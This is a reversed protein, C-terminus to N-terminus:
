FSALPVKQSSLYSIAEKKAGARLINYFELIILLYYIDCFLVLLAIYSVLKKVVKVGLFRSISSSNKQTKGM